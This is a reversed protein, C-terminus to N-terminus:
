PTVPAPSSAPAAALVGAKKARCRRVRLHSALPKCADCFQPMPGAAKRVTAGGCIRCSAKPQAPLGLLRRAVEQRRECCPCRSVLVGEVTFHEVVGSCGPVRCKSAREVTTM